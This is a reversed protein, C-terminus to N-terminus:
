GKSLTEVADVVEKYLSHLKSYHAKVMALRYNNVKHIIHNIHEEDYRPLSKTSCVDAFHERLVDVVEGLEYVVEEKKNRIAM